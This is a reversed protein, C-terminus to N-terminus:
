NKKKVGDVDKSDPEFEYNDRMESVGTPSEKRCFFSTVSTCGGPFADDSRYLKSVSSSGSSGKFQGYRKIKALLKGVDRHPLPPITHDHPLRIEDKDLDILM